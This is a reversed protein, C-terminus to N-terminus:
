KSVIPDQNPCLEILAMLAKEEVTQGGVIVEGDLDVHYTRKINKRKKKPSTKKDTKEEHTEEKISTCDDEKGNLEEHDSNEEERIGNGNEKSEAKVETSEVGNVKVNEEEKEDEDDSKIGNTVSIM